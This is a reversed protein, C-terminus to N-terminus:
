EEKVLKITIEQVKVDSVSEMVKKIKSFDCPALHPPITFKVELKRTVLQPFFEEELMEVLDHECSDKKLQQWMKCVKMASSIAKYEFGLRKNINLLGDIIEKM